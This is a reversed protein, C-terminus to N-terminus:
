SPARDGSAGAARVDVRQRVLSRDKGPVLELVVDRSGSVLAKGFASSDAFRVTKLMTRTRGLPIRHERFEFIEDAEILLAVGDPSMFGKFAAEAGEALRIETRAPGSWTANVEGGILLRRATAVERAEKASIDVPIDFVVGSVRQIDDFAEIVRLLRESVLPEDPLDAMSQRSWLSSRTELRHPARLHVLWRLVPLVVGPLTSKQEVGFTFSAKKQKVNVTLELELWGSVDSGTCVFGSLGAYKVKLDLPLSALLRDGDHIDAVVHLSTDSLLQSGGLSVEAGAGTHGLGLPADLSVRTNVRRPLSVPTGYDFTRQLADHLDKDDQGFTFTMDITIPRDMEAGVYRPYVDVRADGFSASFIAKAPRGMSAERGIALGYEYYPDLENLREHLVRLRSVSDMASSPKAKEAHLEALLKVVEDSARDIFYQRIEPRSSMEADLWTLGRWVLPFASTARLGEFWLEEAPTLDIPVVLTWDVPNLAKARDLSRKVQSRRSATIRGTFSKLEFVHLGRVDRFHVDRGGDGGAGDIRQTEPNIRSLLVAGMREYTDEDLEDWKVRM